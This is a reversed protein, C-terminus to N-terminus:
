VIINTFVWHSISISNWKEHVRPFSLHKSAWHQRRFNQTNLDPEEMGQQRGYTNLELFYTCCPSDVLHGGQHSFPPSWKSCSRCCPEELTDLETKFTEFQHPLKHEKHVLWQKSNRGLLLILFGSTIKGSYNTHLQPRLIPPFHTRPYFLRAKYTLEVKKRRQSRSCNLQGELHLHKERYFPIM